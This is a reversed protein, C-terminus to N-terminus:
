AEIAFATKIYSAIMDICAHASPSAALAETVVFGHLAGLWRVATVNVGASILKAAFLEGEDRLVDYECTVILTDPFRSLADPHARLPSVFPNTRSSEKTLYNELFWQMTTRSLNPNERFETYSATSGGCDTVPYLLVLRSPLPLRREIASLILAAALNGGSSDGALAFREKDLGLTEARQMTETVATVCAELPIPFRFEPARPYDIFAVVSQSRVALECVLRTHTQIDGLTWGGGHLYFTIPAPCAAHLPKVLHVACASTDHAEVQVAFDAFTSTQAARMRAREEEVTLTGLLPQNLLDNLFRDDSSSLRPYLVATASDIDEGKCHEVLGGSPPSVGHDEM